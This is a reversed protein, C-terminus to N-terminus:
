NPFLKNTPNNFFPYTLSYTNKGDDKRNQVDKKRVYALSSRYLPTLSKTMKCLSLTRCSVLFCHNNILMAVDCRSASDCCLSVCVRPDQVVGVDTFNGAELGGRLTAGVRLHTSVCQLKEKSEAKPIVIVIISITLDEFMQCFLHLLANIM